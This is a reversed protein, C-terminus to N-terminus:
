TTPGITTTYGTGWINYAVYNQTALLDIIGTQTDNGKVGVFVTSDKDVTAKWHVTGCRVEAKKTEEDFLVNQIVVEENNFDIYIAPDAGKTVYQPKFCVSSEIEITEGDLLTASVLVENANPALALDTAIVNYYSETPFPDQVLAELNDIDTELDSIKTDQSTNKTDM